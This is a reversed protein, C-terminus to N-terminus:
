DWEFNEGEGNGKLALKKFSYDTENGQSENEESERRCETRLRSCDSKQEM